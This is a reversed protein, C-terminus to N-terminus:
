QDKGNPESRREFFPETSPDHDALAERDPIGVPAHLAATGELLDPLEAGVVSSDAIKRLSRLETGIENLVDGYVNIELKQAPAVEEPRFFGMIDKNSKYSDKHELDNAIAVMNQASQQLNGFLHLIAKDVTAQAHSEEESVLAKMEESRLM